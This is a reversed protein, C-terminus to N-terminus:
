LGGLWELLPGVMMFGTVLAGILLATVYTRKHSRHRLPPPLYLASDSIWLTDGTEPYKTIKM